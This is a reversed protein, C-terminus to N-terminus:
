ILAAIQADGKRAATLFGLVTGRPTERGLTDKPSEAPTEATTAARSAKPDSIQSRATSSILVALCVLTAFFSGEQKRASVGSASIMNIGRNLGIHRM